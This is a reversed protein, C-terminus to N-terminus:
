TEKEPGEEKTVAVSMDGASFWGEKTGDPDSYELSFHVEKHDDIGKVNQFGSITIMVGEEVLDLRSDAGTINFRAVAVPLSITLVDGVHFGPRYYVNSSAEKVLINQPFSYVSLEEKDESDCRFESHSINFIGDLDFIILVNITGNIAEWEAPAALKYQGEIPNTEEPVIHANMAHFLHVMRPLKVICSGDGIDSFAFAVIAGASSDDNQPWHLTAVVSEDLNAAGQANALAVLALFHLFKM